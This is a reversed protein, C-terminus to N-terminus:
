KQERRIALAIDTRVAPLEIILSAGKSEVKWEMQLRAERTDWAAVTYTGAEMAPIEITAPVPPAQPNLTGDKRLTDTRLLWVVAQAGDASAFVAMGSTSVHVQDSINRRNFRSWRVLQSFRALSHQARRMGHTLTHPHRNPWRMGGGAAGSALHAWQIHSFYEDDFSEPLTVHKDKFLHIPGHESDFFPRNDPLHELAEKVLRGAVIASDVTNKPYNITTNDYFHTSAFDLDPHRFIVDAVQPHDDLVPGYLSVTQLHSRGYLRQETSRLHHSLERVFDHFVETSNNAHAPHIENWLDWAFIVGSGGWRETVYTLRGKIFNLTSPCLLWRSRRSCPGGNKRNYPHHKWRIWMWFTDFPTLLVRIGYKACLAFLDDWLRIMNPAFTGAPREFYRHETQAYELMFRLCTVQHEALWALHGEVQKLDKRRFLNAFDPWTIADNQGIPTWDEGQETEFYPAQPARQIWPLDYGGSWQSNSRKVEPVTAPTTHSKNHRSETTDIQRPYQQASEERLEM